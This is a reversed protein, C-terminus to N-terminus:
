AAAISVKTRVINCTCCRVGVYSCMRADLFVLLCISKLALECIFLVVLEQEKIHVM